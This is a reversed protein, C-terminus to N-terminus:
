TDALASLMNILLILSFTINFIRLIFRILSVKGKANHEKGWAAMVYPDNVAVCVIEKIGDSKMKEAKEVYGPLHTKSCGPTFAGPVGFLVVKGNSSLEQANVKNAPSDEFM